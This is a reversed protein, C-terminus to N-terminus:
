NSEVRKPGGAKAQNTELELDQTLLSLTKM